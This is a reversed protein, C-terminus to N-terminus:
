GPFPTVTLLGPVCGPRVSMENDGDTFFSAILTLGPQTGPKSVTVGNGPYRALRTLEMPRVRALTERESFVQKVAHAGDRIVSYPFLKFASLVFGLAFVLAGCSLRFLLKAWDINKM